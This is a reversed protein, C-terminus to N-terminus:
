FTHTHTHTKFSSEQKWSSTGSFATAPPLLSVPVQNDHLDLVHLKLLSALGSMEQIRHESILRCTLTDSLAFVSPASSSRGPSWSRGVQEKGADSSPPFAPGGPWGDRIHQQSESQPSAPEASTVPAPHGHNQQAPPESAAARGDDEASPM